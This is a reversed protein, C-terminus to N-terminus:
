AKSQCDLGRRSLLQQTQKSGFDFACLLYRMKPLMCPPVLPHHDSSLLWDPHDQSGQLLVHGPPAAGSQCARSAALWSRKITEAVTNVIIRGNVHRSQQADPLLNVPDLLAAALQQLFASGATDTVKTTQAELRSLM